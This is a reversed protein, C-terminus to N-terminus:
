SQFQQRGAKCHPEGVCFQRSSLSWGAELEWVLLLLFVAPRAPKQSCRDIHFQEVCVPSDRGRNSANVSRIFAQSNEPQASLLLCQNM